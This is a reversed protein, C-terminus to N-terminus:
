AGRRAQQILYDAVQLAQQHGGALSGATYWRGAIGLAPVGDIRYAESLQKGQKVKTQVSFSKFMEGFQAADIGQAKAFAIADEEKDLRKHEVQLTSFVKRHMTEILGMAELTYFIRAHMEHMASFAVPVRRVQVDAAQKKQWADFFPEFANCHPCGYWFFEVVEIKGGPAKPLPQSLKVYQQGEVPAAQAQASGAAGVSLLGVAGAAAMQTFERRNWERRNM